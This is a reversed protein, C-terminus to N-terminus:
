PSRRSPPRSRAERSSAASRGIAVFAGFQSGQLPNFLFDLILQLLLGFVAVFLVGTIHYVPVALTKGQQSSLAFGPRALIHKLGDVVEDPSKVSSNYRILHSVAFFKLPIRLKM